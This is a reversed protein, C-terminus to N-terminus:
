TDQALGKRTIESRSVDFYFPIRGDFGKETQDLEQRIHIMRCAKRKDCPCQIGFCWSAIMLRHDGCYTYFDLYFLSRDGAHLHRGKCTRVFCMTPCPMMWDSVGWKRRVIAAV